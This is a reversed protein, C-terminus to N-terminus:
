RLNPDAQGNWWGNDPRGDRNYDDIQSLRMAKSHGDAFAINVQSNHREAPTSRCGWRGAGVAGSGCETGTGYFGSERGSGRLSSLPPDITYDGGGVTNDDRRVGQTDAMAITEAPSTVVADVAVFPLRANGLYQYNMGYGGYALQSNHFWRKGLMERGASPCLFVAENKAYPYVRDNWRIRPVWSAQSSHLPYADYDQAYMAIGLSMQRTNSLCSAQRAKERAQAFVPFLIAALIAIIAIVVLLEILTFARKPHYRM